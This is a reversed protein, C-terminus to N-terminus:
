HRASSSMEPGAPAPGGATAGDSDDGQEAADGNKEGPQDEFPLLKIEKIRKTLGTMDMYALLTPWYTSIKADSMKKMRRIDAFAVKHLHKNKVAYAIKERLEGVLTSVESQDGTVANLLSTLEKASILVLEKPPKETTTKPGAARRKGNGASKSKSKTKSKTKAM